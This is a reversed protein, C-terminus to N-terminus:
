IKFIIRFMVANEWKTKRYRRAPDSQATFAGSILLNDNSGDGNRDASPAWLFVDNLQLRVMPNLTWNLGVSAEHVQHAGDLVAATVANGEGPVAGAYSPPLDPSGSSFGPVTASEFLAQDSRTLTYRALLEWAGKGGEGWFEEPRATRWGV